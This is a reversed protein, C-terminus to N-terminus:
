ESYLYFVGFLEDEDLWTKARSFGADVAMGLVEDVTYKHSNETHVKEGDSFQFNHGAVSVSQDCTSVLFMQICGQAVDYTAEHRFRGLDFNAGYERNIHELINLNFDATVGSKDNYAENLVNIDKKMDVGILLGGDAGVLSRIRSLFEM